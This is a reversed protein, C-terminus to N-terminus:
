HATPCHLRGAAARPVQASPTTLAPPILASFHGTPLTAESNLAERSSQSNGVLFIAPTTAQSAIAREDDAACRGFENLIEIYQM